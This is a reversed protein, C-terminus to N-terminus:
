QESIYFIKYNKDKSLFNLIKKEFNLLDNETFANALSLMPVRHSVKKFNKSPKYGVVKSPSDESKLFVYKKELKLIEKKLKDYEDDSVAPKNKDYYFKNFKKLLKIKNNYTFTIEKKDM